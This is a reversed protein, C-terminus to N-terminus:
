RRETLIGQKVWQELLSLFDAQVREKEANYRASLGQLIEEVSQKGDFTELMAHSVKNLRFIKGSALNFLFYGGSAFDGHFLAYDESLSYITDNM